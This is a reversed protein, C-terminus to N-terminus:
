QYKKRLQNVWAEEYAISFSKRQDSLGAKTVETPWTFFAAEIVEMKKTDSNYKLITNRNGWPYDIYELERTIIEDAGDFDIDIPDFRSFNSTNYVIIPNARKEDSLKGNEDYAGYAYTPFCQTFTKCYGLSSNCVEIKYDEYFRLSFGTSFKSSDFNLYIKKGALTYINCQETAHRGMGINKTLIEFDGSGDIDLFYFEATGPLIIYYWWKDKMILLINTGIQNGLLIGLVEDGDTSWKKASTQLVSISKNELNLSYRANILDIHKEFAELYFKHVNNENFNKDKQCETVSNYDFMNFSMYNQAEQLDFTHNKCEKSATNEAKLDFGASLVSQLNFIVIFILFLYKPM